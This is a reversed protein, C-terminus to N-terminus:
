SIHKSTNPDLHQHLFCRTTITSTHAAPLGSKWSNHFYMCAHMCAYSTFGHIEPNDAAKHCGKLFTVVWVLLILLRFIYRFLGFITDFTLSEKICYVATKWSFRTQRCLDHGMSEGGRKWSPGSTKHNFHMRNQWLGRRTVFREASAEGKNILCCHIGESGPKRHIQNCSKETGGVDLLLYCALWAFPLGTKDGKNLRGKPNIILELSTDTMTAMSVVPSHQQLIGLVPCLKDPIADCKAICKLRAQSANGRIHQLLHSQTVEWQYDM